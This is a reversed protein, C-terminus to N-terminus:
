ASRVRSTLPSRSSSSAPRRRRSTLLQRELPRTSSPRPHSVRNEHKCPSAVTGGRAGALTSLASTDTGVLRREDLAVCAAAPVVAALPLECPAPSAELSRGTIDGVPGCDATASARCAGAMTSACCTVSARGSAGIVTVCGTVDVTSARGAGMAASARSPIATAVGRLLGCGRPHLRLHGHHHLLLGGEGAAGLRRRHLDRVVVDRWGPPVLPCARRHWGRAGPPPAQSFTPRGCPPRPGSAHRRPRKM